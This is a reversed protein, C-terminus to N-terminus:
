SAKTVRGRIAEVVLLCKKWTPVYAREAFPNLDQEEIADLIGAYVRAMIKACQQSGDYPIASLGERGLEYFHRARGIEHEMIQKWRQTHTGTELDTYDLGYSDLLDVPLYCRGRGWDENVDRLINTLQLAIGMEVAHPLADQDRVEFVCCMILGVVSAVYYCYMELEPYTQLRQPQRDLCCGHILDQWFTKPIGFEQNVIRFAPALPLADDGELIKDLEKNLFEQTPALDSEPAEDIIDDVYRCYAYVTFAALRKFKPLPFSAFFFSKAHHRTVQRCHEISQALSKNKFWQRNAM